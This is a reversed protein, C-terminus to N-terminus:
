DIQPKCDNECKNKKMIWIEIYSYLEKILLSLIHIIALMSCGTFQTLLGFSGGFSAIKDFVTYRVTLVDVKVEPTVFHLNVVILGVVM